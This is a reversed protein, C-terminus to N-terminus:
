LEAPLAAVMRRQANALVSSALVTPSGVSIRRFENGKARCIGSLADSGDQIVAFPLNRRITISLPLLATFARQVFCNLPEIDVREVQDGVPIRGSTMETFPCWSDNLNSGAFLFTQLMSSRLEPRSMTM